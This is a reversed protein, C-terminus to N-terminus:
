LVGANQHSYTLLMSSFPSSLAGFTPLVKKPFTADYAMHEYFWEVLPAMELPFSAPCKTLHACCTGAPLWARRRPCLM